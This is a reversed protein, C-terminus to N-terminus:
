CAGTVLCSVHFGVNRFVYQENGLNWLFFSFVKFLTPDVVMKQVMDLLYCAQVSYSIVTQINCSPTLTPESSYFYKTCLYGDLKLFVERWKPNEM